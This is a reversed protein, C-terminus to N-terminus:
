LGPKTHAASAGPQARPARSTRVNRNAVHPLVRPRRDAFSARARPRTPRGRRMQAVTVPRWRSEGRGERRKPIRVEARYEDGTRECVLSCGLADALLRAIVQGLGLGRHRNSAALRNTVRVHFTEGEQWAALCVPKGPEGHDFANVILSQLLGEFQTGDGPADFSNCEQLIQLELAGGTHRLDQGVKAVLTSPDYCERSGDTGRSSLFVIQSTVRLMRDAIDSIAQCRERVAPDASEEAAARAAMVVLGLPGRIEHVAMSVADPVRSNVKRDGWRWRTNSSYSPHGPNGM